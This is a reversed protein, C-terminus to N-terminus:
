ITWNFNVSDRRHSSSLLFVKIRVFLFFFEWNSGREQFRELRDFSDVQPVWLFIFLLLRSLSFILFYFCSINKRREQILKYIEHSCTCLSPLVSQGHPLPVFSSCYVVDHGKLRHKKLFLFFVEFAGNLIFHAHSPLQFASSPSGHM